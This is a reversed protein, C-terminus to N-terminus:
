PVVSVQTGLSVQQFLEEIDKNYMRICGHSAATGVSGPNPTGHFGIWNKGNTWFGIWYRGLPNDPDGGPITVGKKLPHIWSPNKLKQLVTYNGKPTEWGPRGIAIPYHKITTEGQYLVVRRRGLQVELRVTESDADIESPTSSSPDSTSSPSPSVQSPYNEPIQPLPINLEVVNGPQTILNLISANAYVHRDSRFAGESGIGMALLLAILRASHQLM